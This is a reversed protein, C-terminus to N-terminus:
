LTGAARIRDFLQRNWEAHVRPHLHNPARPPIAVGAAAAAANLDHLTTPWAAPWPQVLACLMQLDIDWCRDFLTRAEDGLGSSRAFSDLTPIWAWFEQVDGCFDIVADRLQLRPMRPEEPRILRFVGSMFPNAVPDIAVEASIGFWSGGEEDALGIWMLEAHALWPAATWETDVFIRRAM